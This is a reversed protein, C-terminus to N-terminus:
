LLLLKYTIIPYIFTGFQGVYLEQVESGEIMIKFWYFKKSEKYVWPM